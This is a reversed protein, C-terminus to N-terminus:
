ALNIGISIKNLNSSIKIRNNDKIYEAKLQGEILFIDNSKSMVAFLMMMILMLGFGDM